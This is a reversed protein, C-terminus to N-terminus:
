PLSVLGIYAAGVTVLAGSIVGWACGIFMGWRTGAVFGAREGASYGEARGTALLAAQLAKARPSVIQTREPQQTATDHLNRITATM